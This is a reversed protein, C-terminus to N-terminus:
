NREFLKILISSIIAGLSIGIGAYITMSLYHLFIKNNGGIAYLMAYYISSGPLLPITSPMLIIIAPIKLARAMMECYLSLCLMAMMCSILETYGSLIAYISSSIGAGIIIYLLSSKPAKMTIAFFFSGLTSLLIETIM